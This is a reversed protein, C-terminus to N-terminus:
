HEYLTRRVQWEIDFTMVGLLNQQWRSFALEKAGKRPMPLQAAFVVNDATLGMQLTEESHFDEIKRCQRKPKARPVFWEDSNYDGKDDICKVTLAPITANPKPSVVAGLLFCFVQFAVLVGVVTTLKRTSMSEIIAGSSSSM